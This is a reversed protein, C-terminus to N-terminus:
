KRRKAKQTEETVVPAEDKAPAEPREGKDNKNGEDAAAPAVTGHEKAVEGVADPHAEADTKAAETEKEDLVKKAEDNRDEDAKRQDAKEDAMVDLAAKTAGTQEGELKEVADARAEAVEGADVQEVSEISRAEGRGDADADVVEGDKGRAVVSNGTAEARELETVYDQRINSQEDTVAGIKTEQGDLAQETYLPTDVTEGNGPLGMLGGKPGETESAGPSRIFEPTAKPDKGDEDPPLGDSKPFEPADPHPQFVGDGGRYAPADTGVLFEDNSYESM